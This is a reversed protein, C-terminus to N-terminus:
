KTNKIKYILLEDQKYFLDYNSFIFQDVPNDTNYKFKKVMEYNMIACLPRNKKLYKAASLFQEDTNQNTILFSFATPQIKKTDFYLGPIFPGAYIFKSTLCNKYIYKAVNSQNFFRFPPYFFILIISPVILILLIISFFSFFLFRKWKSSETGRSILLPLVSILPFLIISIHLQDPRQLASFLLVLQLFFLLILINKKKEFFILIIYTVVILSFFIFFLNLSLHNTEIYNHLPFFVLRDYLTNIPAFLFLLSSSLFFSVSFSLLFVSYIGRKNKLLLWILWLCFLLFTLVSKQQLFLFSIGLIFGSAIFFYNSKLEVARLFFYACWIILSINYTNHNIAQWHFSTLIFLTPAILSFKKDSLLKTIKYVGIAAIYIFCLSFFKALLYSPFFVKWIVFIFYFSGPPIFAFFDTYIKQGNFLNWAGALVVGEDSNLYYSFNFFQLIVFLAFWWFIKLNIKNLFFAIKDKLNNRM